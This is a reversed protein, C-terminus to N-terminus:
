GNTGGGGEGGVGEVESWGLVTAASGQAWGPFTSPDPPNPPPPPTLASLTCVHPHPSSSLCALHWNSLRLETPLLPFTSM